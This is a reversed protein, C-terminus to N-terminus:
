CGAVETLIRKAYTAMGANRNRYYSLAIAGAYVAWARGRLFTDPDPALLDFFKARGETDLLSWAVTLDAAPDGISTEQLACPHHWREPTEPVGM